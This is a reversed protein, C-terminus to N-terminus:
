LMEYFVVNNAAEEKDGLFVKVQEQNRGRSLGVYLMGHTFVPRKIYLGM